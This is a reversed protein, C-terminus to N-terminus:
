PRSARWAFFLLVGGVALAVSVTAPLPGGALGSSEWESRDMASECGPDAPFDIREDGDDDQENSCLPRTWRLVEDRYYSMDAAFTADGYITASGPVRADGSVSIMLGALQWGGDRQVFVAGGSDGSAAHTEYRTAAPAFPEDFRFTIARTVYDSQNLIEYNSEVRNTGWRKKGTKSWTFAFRTRGDLDYEIVKERGRGFGILLIDEGPRAPEKAIPILPLDPMAVGPELAFIM